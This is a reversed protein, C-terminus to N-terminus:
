SVAPVLSFLAAVLLAAGTAAGTVASVAYGRSRAVYPSSLAVLTVVTAVAYL